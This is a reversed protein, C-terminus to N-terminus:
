DVSICAKRGRVILQAFTVAKRENKWLLIQSFPILFAGFIMLVIGHPDETKYVPTYGADTSESKTEALLHIQQDLEKFPKLSRLDAAFVVFNTSLLLVVTLASFKVIM